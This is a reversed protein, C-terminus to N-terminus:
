RVIEGRVPMPTKMWRDRETALSEVCDEYDQENGLSVSAVVQGTAPNAYTLTQGNGKHYEGSHYVGANAKGIKLQKLFPYATLSSRTKTTTSFLRNM